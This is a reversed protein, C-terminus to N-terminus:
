QENYKNVIELLLEKNSIPYFMRNIYIGIMDKPAAFDMEEDLMDLKYWSYTKEDEKILIKPVQDFSRKDRDYNNTRSLIMTSVPDKDLISKISNFFKEDKGEIIYEQIDKM